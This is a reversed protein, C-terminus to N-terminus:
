SDRPSPSTYLLCNNNVGSAGGLFAIVMILLLSVQEVWTPTDNLVYRGFVLWAFMVTMAVIATGAFFVCVSSIGDYFADMKRMLAPPKESERMQKAGDFFGPM